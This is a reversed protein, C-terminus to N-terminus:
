RWSTTLNGQCNIPTWIILLYVGKNPGSYTHVVSCPITKFAKVNGPLGCKKKQKEEKQAQVCTASSNFIVTTGTLCVPCNYCYEIRNNQRQYMNICAFLKKFDQERAFDGLLILQPSMIAWRELVRAEYTLIREDVM